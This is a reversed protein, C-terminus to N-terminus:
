FIYHVPALLLQLRKASNTNQYLANKIRAKRGLGRGEPPPHLRQISYTKSMRLKKIYNREHLTGELIFERRRLILRIKSPAYKHKGSSHNQCPGRDYRQWSHLISLFDGQRPANAGASARVKFHPYKVFPILKRRAITKSISEDIIGISGVLVRHTPHTGSYIMPM